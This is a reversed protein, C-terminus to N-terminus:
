SGSGHFRIRIWPDPDPGIGMAMRVQHSIYRTQLKKIRVYELYNIQFHLISLKFTLYKM